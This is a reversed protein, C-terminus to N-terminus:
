TWAWTFPNDSNKKLTTELASGGGLQLMAFLGGGKM